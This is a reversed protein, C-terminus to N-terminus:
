KVNKIRRGSMIQDVVWELSESSKIMHVVLMRQFYVNNKLVYDGFKEHGAGVKVM